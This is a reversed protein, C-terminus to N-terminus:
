QRADLDQVHAVLQPFFGEFDQQLALYHRELEGAAEGLRSPRSLRGEIGRLARAIGDIDRYSQLLDHRLMYRMSRQMKPPLKDYHMDVIAYVRRAFPELPGAAYRTWDRALYHDYFMDVLIGAYRRFDPHVRRKSQLVLPHADTFTDIRRHLWIGERIARPRQPDVRGKVFDGMLSGIIAQEDEGALYVHALYNM